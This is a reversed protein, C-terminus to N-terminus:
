LLDVPLAVDKSKLPRWCQQYYALLGFPHFALLLQGTTWGWYFLAFNCYEGAWVELMNSNRSLLTCQRVSALHQCAVLEEERKARFHM